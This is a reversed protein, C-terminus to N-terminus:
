VSGASYSSKGNLSLLESHMIKVQEPERIFSFKVFHAQLMKRREQSFYIAEGKKLVLEEACLRAELPFCWLHRRCTERETERKM